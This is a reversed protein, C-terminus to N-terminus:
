TALFHGAPAVILILQRDLPRVSDWCFSCLYLIIWVGSQCSICRQDDEAPEPFAVVWAQGVSGRWYMKRHKAGRGSDVSKTSLLGDENSKAIVDGLSARSSVWKKNGGGAKKRIPPM